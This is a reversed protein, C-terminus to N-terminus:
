NGWVMKATVTAEDTAQIEVCQKVEMEESDKRILKVTLYPHYMKKQLALDLNQGSKIGETQDTRVTM